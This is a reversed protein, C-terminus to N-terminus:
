KEGVFKEGSLYVGNLETEIPHLETDHYKTLLAELLTEEPKHKVLNNQDYNCIFKIRVIAIRM